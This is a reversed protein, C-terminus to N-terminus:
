LLNGHGVGEGGDGVDAAVEGGFEADGPLASQYVAEAGGDDEGRGVAVGVSEPADLVEGMQPQDPM